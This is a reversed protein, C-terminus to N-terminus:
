PESLVIKGRRGRRSPEGGLNASRACKRLESQKVFRPLKCLKTPNSPVLPNNPHCTPAAYEISDAIPPVPPPRNKQGPRFLEHWPGNAVERVAGRTVLQLNPEWRRWPAPEARRWRM